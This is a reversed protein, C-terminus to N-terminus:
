EPISDSFLGTCYYRGNHSLAMTYCFKQHFPMLSAQHPPSELWLRVCQNAHEQVTLEGWSEATIESVSGGLSEARNEFGEHEDQFGQAAMKEAYPRALSCAVEDFSGNASEGAAKKVAVILAAEEPSPQAQPSTQAKGAIAFFLALSSVIIPKLTKLIAGKIIKDPKL